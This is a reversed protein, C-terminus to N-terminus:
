DAKRNKPHGSLFILHAPGSKVRDTKWEYSESNSVNQILGQLEEVSYTRLASVIGDWWTFLPVLPLPYTFVLRGWSFPRILPTTFLVTLPSFFMALISLVSRDQGEAIFIAQKSDVANQLIRVADEPGFHHFSLFMTRVGKLKKPVNRADVPEPIAKFNRAQSQTFQFAKHNPYLDTLVIKVEPNIKQLDENLSLLGGGGGSGLDILQNSGTTKLLYNLEPVLPSFMRTKNTLFQLFDTMYDRIRAPFWAQDEWEFFQIRGM